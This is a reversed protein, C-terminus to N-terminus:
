ISFVTHDSSEPHGHHIKEQEVTLTRKLYEKQHISYYGEDKYNLLLYSAEEEWGSRFVIKKSIVGELADGSRFDPTEPEVSPDRYRWPSYALTNGGNQLLPAKGATDPQM